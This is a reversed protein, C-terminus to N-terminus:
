KKDEKGNLAIVIKTVRSHNVLSVIVSALAALSAPILALLLDWHTVGFAWLM